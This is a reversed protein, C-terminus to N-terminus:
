ASKKASKKGSKKQKKELSKEISPVVGGAAFTADKLLAGLDADARVAMTIARPTVRRSGAKKKQQVKVALELLEATLYELVAALYVGSSGSVRKSYRGKRLQSAVRGTPFILGSKKQKGASGSKKAVRKKSPTPM